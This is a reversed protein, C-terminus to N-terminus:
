GNNEINAYREAKAFAADAYTAACKYADQINAAHMAAAAQVIAAAKMAQVMTESNM